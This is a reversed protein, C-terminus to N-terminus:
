AFLNVIVVGIVILGIGVLGLLSITEKYIFVSILTSVIIGVGCWIAYAISLNLQDLCKSFFFFCFGYSILCFLTPFLVSFGKTTKLFVTGCLELLIALFLYVYAM